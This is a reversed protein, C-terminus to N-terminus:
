LNELFFLKYEDLKKSEFLNRFNNQSIIFLEADSAIEAGLVDNLKNNLQQYYDKAFDFERFRKILLVQTRKDLYANSVRLRADPYEEDHYAEIKEIVSKIPVELREFHLMGLINKTWNKQYLKDTDEEEEDIMSENPLGKDGRQQKTILILYEQAKKGIEDDSHDVVIQSLALKLEDIKNMQGLSMAELFRFQPLLQSQPYKTEAEGRRKIVDNYEGLEYMDYTATYFVQDSVTNKDNKEKGLLVAAAESNPFDNLITQRHNKANVLDKENSYILYLIYHARPLYGADKVNLSAILHKKAKIANKVENWFINGLEFHYEGLLEEVIEMEEETEPIKDKGIEKIQNELDEGDAIASSDEDFTNNAIDDTLSSIRWNDQLKRDGWASRFETFGRGRISANYFYWKGGSSANSNSNSNNPLNAFFPDEEGGEESLISRRRKKKEEKDLKKQHEAIYAERDITSMLGLNRLSDQDYIKTTLESVEETVNKKFTLKDIHEFDPGMFTSSSDYMGYALAYEEDAFRLDGLRYYSLGKQADNNESARISSTLAEKAEEINGADHHIDAIMYYVQDRFEKNTRDKLLKKLLKLAEQETAVNKYAYLKAIKMHTNFRLTYDGRAKLSEHYSENAAEYEGDEEYLQGIVFLQFAKEKRKSAAAATLLPDIAQPYNDRSIYFFSELRGLEKQQKKSLKPLSEVYKILSKAKGYEGLAIFSKAMWMVADPRAPKHRIKEWFNMEEIDKLDVTDAETLEEEEGFDEEVQEYNFDVENEESQQEEKFKEEAAKKNEAIQEAASKKEKYIIPPKGKKKRKINKKKIKIKKALAKKKAAIADQTRKKAAEVKESIEKSKEKKRQEIEKKKQAAEKSIEKLRAKKAKKQNKTNGKKAVDKKMTTSVFQFTKLAREHEGQLYQAKGLLVYCDDKWRTYDRLQLVLSTKKVIEELEGSYNSFEVPYDHFYLPLIEDYDLESTNIADKKLEKYKINANFYFNNRTTIDNYGRKLINASHADKKKKAKKKKQAYAPNSFALCLM